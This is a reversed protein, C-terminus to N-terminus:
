DHRPELVRHREVFVWWLTAAGAGIAAWSLVFGIGGDQNVLLLGILTSLAAGIGILWTMRPEPLLHGFMVAPISLITGVPLAAICVYAFVIRVASWGKLLAEDDDGLLTLGALSAALILTILPVSLAARVALNM